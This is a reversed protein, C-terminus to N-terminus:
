QCGGLHRRAKKTVLTIPNNFRAVRAIKCGPTTKEKHLYCDNVGKPLRNRQCTMTASFGREGLYDM